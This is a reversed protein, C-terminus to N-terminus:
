TNVDHFYYTCDNSYSCLIAYSSCSIYELNLWAYLVYGWVLYGGYNASVIYSLQKFTFLGEDLM